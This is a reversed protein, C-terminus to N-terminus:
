RNLRYTDSSSAHIIQLMAEMTKRFSPFFDSLSSMLSYSTLICTPFATSHGLCDQDVCNNGDSLHAKRHVRCASVPVHYMVYVVSM